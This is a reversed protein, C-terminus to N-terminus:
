HGAIWRAGFHSHSFENVNHTTATEVLSATAASIGKTQGNERECVGSPEIGCM